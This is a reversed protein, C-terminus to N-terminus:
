GISTISDLADVGNASNNMPQYNYPPQETLTNDLCIIQTLTVGGGGQAIFFLNDYFTCDNAHGYHREKEIRGSVYGNGSQKGMVHAIAVNNNTKISTIFHVRNSGTSITYGQAKDYQGANDAEFMRTVNYVSKVISVEPYKYDAM